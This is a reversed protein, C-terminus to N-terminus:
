AIKDQIQAGEHTQPRKQKTLLESAILVVVGCFIFSDALNFVPFRWVAFYDTVEGYLVRETLNGFAGATILMMGAHEFKTVVQKKWYWFLVGLLLVSVVLQPTGTLPLSFAIGENKHLVLRLWDDALIIPEVLVSDAWVKVLLDAATLVAIGVIM